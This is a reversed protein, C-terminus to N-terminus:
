CAPFIEKWPLMGGKQRILVDTHQHCQDRSDGHEGVFVDDRILTKVVCGKPLVNRTGLRKFLHFEDCSM